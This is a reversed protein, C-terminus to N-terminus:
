FVWSMITSNVPEIRRLHMPFLSDFKPYQTASVWLENILDLPIELPNIIITIAM